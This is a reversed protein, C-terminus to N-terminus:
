AGFLICVSAFSKRVEQCENEGKGVGEMNRVSIDQGYGKGGKTERRSVRDTLM